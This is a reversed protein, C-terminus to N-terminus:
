RVTLYMAGRVCGGGSKSTNNRKLRSSSGTLFALFLNFARVSIMTLEDPSIKMGHRFVRQVIIQSDIGWTNGNLPYKM